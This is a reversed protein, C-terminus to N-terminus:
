RMSVEDAAFAERLAAEQKRDLAGVLPLLFLQGFLLGWFAGSLAAPGPAPGAQYTRPRRTGPPWVVM